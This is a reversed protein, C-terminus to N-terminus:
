ELMFSIILFFSYVAVIHISIYIYNTRDPIACPVIIWQDRQSSLIVSLWQGKFLVLVVEIM